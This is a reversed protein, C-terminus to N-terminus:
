WEEVAKSLGQSAEGGEVVKVVQETPQPCQDMEPMTRIHM